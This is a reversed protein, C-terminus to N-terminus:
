FTPWSLARGVREGDSNRVTTRGAGLLPVAGLMMAGGLAMGIIGGVVVAERDELRGLAYTLSSALEVSIGGILIGRGWAHTRLLGPSVVLKILASDGKVHFPNSPSLQPGHIRLSRDEIDVLRDCPAQCVRQWPASPNLRPREELWVRPSASVIHVIVRGSPHSPVSAIPSPVPSRTPTAHPATPEPSVWSANAVLDWGISRIEGTALQLVVKTGPEYEVIKGRVV